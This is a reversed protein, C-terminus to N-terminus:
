LFKVLRNGLRKFFVNGPSDNMFDLVGPTDSVTNMLQSSLIENEDTDTTYKNTQTSM